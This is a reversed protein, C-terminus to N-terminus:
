DAVCGQKPSPNLAHDRQFSLAMNVIELARISIEIKINAPSLLEFWSPLWGLAEIALEFSKQRLPLLVLSALCSLKRM